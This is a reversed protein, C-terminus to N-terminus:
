QMVHASAIKKTQDATCSSAVRSLAAEATKPIPKGIQHTSTKPYKSLSMPKVTTPSMPKFFRRKDQWRLKRLKELRSDKLNQGDKARKKM